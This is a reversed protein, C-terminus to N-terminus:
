SSLPEALLLQNAGRNKADALTTSAAVSLAETSAASEPVSAVGFSCTIMQKEGAWELTSDSLASRIREAVDRARASPTDPLFLAFENSDVRAPM